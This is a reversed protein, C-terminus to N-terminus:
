RKDGERIEVGPDTDPPPPPPPPPPQNQEKTM